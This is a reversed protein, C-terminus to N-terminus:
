RVKAHAATAKFKNSLEESHAYKWVVNIPCVSEKEGEMSFQDPTFSVSLPIIMTLVIM